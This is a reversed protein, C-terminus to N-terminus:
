AAISSPNRSTNLFVVILEIDNIWLVFVTLFYQSVVQEQFWLLHVVTPIVIHGDVVQHVQISGFKDLVFKHIAWIRGIVQMDIIVQRWHLFFGDTHLKHTLSSGNIISRFNRG